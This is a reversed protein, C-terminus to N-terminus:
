NDTSLKTFMWWHSWHNRRETCVDSLDCENSCKCAHVVSWVCISFVPMLRWITCHCKSQCKNSWLYKVAWAIQNSQKMEKAKLTKPTAPKTKLSMKVTKKQIYTKNTSSWQDYVIAGFFSWCDSYIGHLRSIICTNRKQFLYIFKKKKAKKWWFLFDASIKEHFHVLQTVWSRKQSLRFSGLELYHPEM